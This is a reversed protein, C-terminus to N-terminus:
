KIDKCKVIKCVKTVIAKSDGADLDAKDIPVTLRTGGKQIIITNNVIDVSVDEALSLSPSLLMFSAILISRLLM